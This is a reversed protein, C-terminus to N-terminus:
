ERVRNLLAILKPDDTRKIDTLELVSFGDYARAKDFTLEGYKAVLKDYNRKEEDTRASYVPPLQAPDGVFLMQIGGFPESNGTCEQLIFDIQDVYDPGVMSIEDIVITDVEDWDVMQRRVPMLDPYTGFM